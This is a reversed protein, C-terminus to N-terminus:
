KVEQRNLLDLTLSFDEMWGDIEGTITNGELYAKFPVTKENAGTVDSQEQVIVVKSETEVFDGKRGESDSRDVFESFFNFKVDWTYGTSGDEYFLNGTGFVKGSDMNLELYNTNWFFTRKGTTIFSGTATFSQIAVPRTNWAEAPLPRRAMNALWVAFENVDDWISKSSGGAKTLRALGTAYGMVINRYEEDTYETPDNKQMIMSIEHHLAAQMLKDPNQETAERIIVYLQQFLPDENARELDPRMDYPKGSLASTTEWAMNLATAGIKDGVNKLMLGKGSLYVGAVQYTTSQQEIGKLLIQRGKDILRPGIVHKGVAGVAKGIGAQVAQKGVIKLSKEVMASFKAERVQKALSPAKSSLSIAQQRALMYDYENMTEKKAEIQNLWLEPTKEVAIAISAQMDLAQHMQMSEDIVGAGSVCTVAIMLALLAGEVIVM